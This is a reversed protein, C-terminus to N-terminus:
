DLPGLGTAPESKLRRCVEIGDADALVIDLIVLDVDPTVAALRREYGDAARALQELRHEREGEDM